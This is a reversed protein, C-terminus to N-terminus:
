QFKNERVWVILVWKTGSVVPLAAHMSQDLPQSNEDLNKWMVFKGTTPTVMFNMKPFDTGGGSFEQNLYLICTYIRQGGRNLCETAYTGDSEQFFDHHPEYKGGIEYKVLHPVEQNEIPLGSFESIKQKFYRVAETNDDRIWCGDAIRYRTDITGANQSLVTAASLEQQHTQIIEKCKSEPIFNEIELINNM